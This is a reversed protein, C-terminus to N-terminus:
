LGRRHVARAMLSLARREAVDTATRWRQNGRCRDIRGSLWRFSGAKKGVSFVTHVCDGSRRVSMGLETERSEAWASLVLWRKECVASGVGVNEVTPTKVNRSNFSCFSIQTALQNRRWVQM